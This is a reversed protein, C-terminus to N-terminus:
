PVQINQLRAGLQSTRMRAAREKRILARQLDDLSGITQPAETAILPSFITVPDPAMISFEMPVTGTVGLEPLGMGGVVYQHFASMFAYLDEPTGAGVLLNPTFDGLIGSSILEEYKARVPNGALAQWQASLKFDAAGQVTSLEKQKERALSALEKGFDNLVERGDKDTTTLKLSGEQIRGMDDKTKSVQDMVIKGAERMMPYRKSLLGALSVLNGMEDSNTPVSDTMGITLKLLRAADQPNSAIGQVVGINTGLLDAAQAYVARRQKEDSWQTNGIELDLAMRATSLYKQELEIPLSLTELATRYAQMKNNLITTAAQSQAEAGRLRANAATSAVDLLKGRMELSTAQTALTARADALAAPENQERHKRYTDAINQMNTRVMENQLMRTAALQVRKRAEKKQAPHLIAAIPNEFFSPGDKALFEQNARMDRYLKDQQNAIEKLNQEYRLETALFSNIAAADVRAEAAQLEGVDQLAALTAQGADEFQKARAEVKKAGTEAVVATNQAATSVNSFDRETPARGALAAISARVDDPVASM